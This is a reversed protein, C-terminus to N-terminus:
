ESSSFKKICSLGHLKGAIYRKPKKDQDKSQILEDMIAPQNKIFEICRFTDGPQLTSNECSIARFRYDGMYEILCKRDPLWSIQLLEGKSLSSARVNEGEVIESDIIGTENLHGCFEHWDNKGIYNCLLNLTHLSVKFNKRTSYNWVRELTSSSIHQKLTDFLNDALAQFDAAVELKKGFKKEIEGRLAKIKPSTSEIGM